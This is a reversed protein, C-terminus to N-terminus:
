RAIIPAIERALNTWMKLLLFVIRRWRVVV